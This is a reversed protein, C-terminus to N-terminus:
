APTGEGSGPEVAGEPIAILNAVKAVGPLTWALREAADRDFWGQAMGKLTLAGDAAGISLGDIKVGERQLLSALQSPLDGAPPAIRIHNHVDTVEPLLLLGQEVLRRRTADPAEGTLTAVGDELSVAIPAGQSLRTLEAAVIERPSAPSMDPENGM